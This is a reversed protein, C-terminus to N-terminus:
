LVLWKSGEGTPDFCWGGSGVLMVRCAGADMGGPKPTAAPRKGAAFDRGGRRRRM